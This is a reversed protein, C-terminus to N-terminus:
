FVTSATFLRDNMVIAVLYKATVERRSTTHSPVLPFSLYAARRDSYVKSYKLRNRLSSFLIFLTFIHQGCGVWKLISISQFSGSLQM